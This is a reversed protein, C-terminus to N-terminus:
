PMVCELCNWLTQQSIYNCPEMIFFQARLDAFDQSSIFFQASKSISSIVKMIIITICMFVNDISCFLKNEFLKNLTM